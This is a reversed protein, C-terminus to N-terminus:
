RMTSLSRRCTWAAFCLVRGPNPAPPNRARRPGKLAVLRNLRTQRAKYVVGMGGRGLESLIEYGPILREAQVPVTVVPRDYAGTAQPADCSSPGMPAPPVMPTGPAGQHPLTVQDDSADSPPRQPSLSSM